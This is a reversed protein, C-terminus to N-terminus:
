QSLERRLIRASVYDHDKVAEGVRRDKGMLLVFYLRAFHLPLVGRLSIPHKRSSFVHIAEEIEKRQMPSLPEKLMHDIKRMLALTYHNPSQPQDPMTVEQTDTTLNYKQCRNRTTSGNEDAM